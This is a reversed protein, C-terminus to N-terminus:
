THYEANIKVYDYSFDCTFVRASADGVKLDVRIVLEDALMPARATEPAIDLPSGNELLKVEGFYLDVKDPDLPTGARGAAALVRGWNPDEGFIATKVLPSNAITMATTKADTYSVTNEVIVEVLKTAGEGDRAIERALEMTVQDLTAQFVELSEGESDIPKNGAMGNALAIVTDNTSTDGDVTLSNFSGEASLMLCEHLLAQDIAADTTIFCFMTAVNPQIMGSGKAIGGIRVPTGDIEFGYAVMKPKLDTTMIAHAADSGGDASLAAVAAKVGSEIKEMPLYHGIVGTSCVLVDEEDLGLADAAIQTTRIADDLGRQGTCANANGANAVIARAKGSKSHETTVIVPAAKVKNTTLLAACAATVESYVLALDAGEQKIGCRVGAAKFGKPATIAGDIKNM